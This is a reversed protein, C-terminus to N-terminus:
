QVHHFLVIGVCVSVNLSHKTGEQPIEVCVHSLDVIEQSVGYVEHGFVFATKKSSNSKYDHIGIAQHAQEIAVIDYGEDRLQKVLLPTSEVYKWNVSETAGLATKNIEANPPLPTIGCLYLTEVRFADCTRFVSGVNHASRVNDLVVLVPRKESNKYQQVSMRDLEEVTKKIPKETMM